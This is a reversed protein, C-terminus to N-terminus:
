SGTEPVTTLTWTGPGLSTGIRDNPVAVAPANSGLANGNVAVLAWPDAAVGARVTVVVIPATVRSM